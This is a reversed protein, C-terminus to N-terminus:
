PLVDGDDDVEDEYILWTYPETKGSKMRMIRKFFANTGIGMAKACEEAKAYLILPLEDKKYYVSYRKKVAM